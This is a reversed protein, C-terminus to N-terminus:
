TQRERSDEPVPGSVDTPAPPCGCTRGLHLRHPLVLARPERRSRNEVRDILQAAAREAMDAQPQVVCTMGVLRSTSQELGDFGTVAIDAGARLGAEDLVEMVGAALEDSGCLVADPVTGSALLHRGARRGGARSLETSVKWRGPVALGHAALAEAFGRERLHSSSSFRPGVVTAVREPRHSLVHRTLEQAAAFDDIGVFDATVFQSTRSLFTFPIRGERLIGLSRSDERHVAATIVGDIGRNVLMRAVSRMKEPDDDTTALLVEYGAQAAHTMIGEAWSTFMPNAVTPVTLAIVRSLGTPREARPRVGAENALELVKRRTTDSVGPRGNLVYSVAAQSIGLRRAIAAAAGRGGPKPTAEGGERPREAGSDQERM